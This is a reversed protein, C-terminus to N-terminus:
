TLVVDSLKYKKGQLAFSDAKILPDFVTSEIGSLQLWSCHFNLYYRPPALITSIATQDLEGLKWYSLYPSSLTFFCDEREVILTLVSCDTLM